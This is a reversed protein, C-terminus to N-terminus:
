GANGNTDASAYCEPCEYDPSYIWSQGRKRQLSLEVSGVTELFAEFAQPSLRQRIAELDLDGYRKQDMRFKLAESITPLTM